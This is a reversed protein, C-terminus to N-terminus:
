AVVMRDIRQRRLDTPAAPSHLHHPAAIAALPTDDHEMFLVVPAMVAAVQPDDSSM